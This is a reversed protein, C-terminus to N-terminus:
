QLQRLADQWTRIVYKPSHAQLHDLDYVIEHALPYFLAGDIGANKAAHMDHASDGLMITKAPDAKLHAIAFNIGEPDPKHHAVDESTVILDFLEEVGHARMVLDLNMRLSTTILALQKGQQKLAALLDAAGDYLPVQPLLALMRQNIGEQFESLQDPAVGYKLPSKLNGFERANDRPDMEIGYEGYRKYIQELWLEVTRALTGDWDFLFTDYQKM